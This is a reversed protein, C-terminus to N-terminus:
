VFRYYVESFHIIDGSKLQMTQNAELLEDNVGTGNTSNLDTIFVEGSEEEFQAHIRSVLEHPIVGDAWEKGKGIVYPFKDLTFDQYGGESLCVLYHMAKGQVEKLLMTHGYREEEQEEIEVVSEMNWKEKELDSTKVAKVEGKFRNMIQNFFGSEAIKSNHLASKEQSYEYVEDEYVEPLEEELKQQFNEQKKQQGLTKQICKLIDYNEQLTYRYLAYGQEIVQKDEYDLHNILYEALSHFEEEAQTTEKHPYYCFFLEFTEMDAYIYEPKLFVEDLRLFYRGLEQILKQMAGLIKRFQQENLHKKECIRQLSQKSSIDYQVRTVNDMCYIRCDLFVSIKNYRLMKYKYSEEELEREFILYNKDKERKFYGEM